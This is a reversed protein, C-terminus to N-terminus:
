EALTLSESVQEDRLLLSGVQRLGVIRAIAPVAMQLSVLPLRVAAPIIWPFQKALPTARSVAKITNQWDRAAQDDQLLDPSRDFIHQSVM